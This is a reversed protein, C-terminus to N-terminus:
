SHAALNNTIRSMFYEARTYNVDRTNRGREVLSEVKDRDQAFLVIAMWEMVSQPYTLGDAEMVHCRSKLYEIFDNHLGTLRLTDGRRITNLLEMSMLRMRKEHENDQTAMKVDGIIDKYKEYELV